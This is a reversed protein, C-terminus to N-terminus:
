PAPKVAVAAMAWVPTGVAGTWSMTAAGAGPETSGCGETAGVNWRETQSAGASLAAGSNYIGMTDVVVDGVSSAANVTPATSAGTATAQTGTLGATDPHAGTFSVAGGVLTTVGGSLTVVIDHTGADPNALKWQEVRVNGSGGSVRQASGILTLADGNYTVSSVSSADEVMTVGVILARGEGSCTHSWTLSTAFDTASSAADFALQQRGAALLVQQVGSM